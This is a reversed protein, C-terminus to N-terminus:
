GVVLVSEVELLRVFEYDENKMSMLTIWPDTKWSGVWGLGDVSHGLRVWGMAFQFLQVVWGSTVFM